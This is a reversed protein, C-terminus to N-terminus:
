LFPVSYNVIARFQTQDDRPLKAGLLREDAYYLHVQLGELPGSSPDYELRLNLVDRDPEPARTRADIADFGQGWGVLFKLGEFGLGSFDYTLTVLYAEEGAREFSSQHLSTYVPINGFPDRVAAERGVTSVATTLVFARYSTL